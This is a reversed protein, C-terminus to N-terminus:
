VGFRSRHTNYSQVIEEQSLTKNYAYVIPIDASIYQIFGTSWAGVTYINTGNYYGGAIRSGRLVGNQYVSQVFDSSLTCTINTWVNNVNSLTVNLDDSYMGFRFSTETILRLHLSERTASVSGVSFFVQSSFSTPKIWASITFPTNNINNNLNGTVRDDVGDFVICGGNSPNFTPGNILIGNNGGRSIDNWITSGSIYSKPNSADLYLLLGDTVINPGGSLTSM